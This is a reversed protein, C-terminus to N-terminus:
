RSRITTTGLQPQQSFALMRLICTPLDPNIEHLPSAGSWPDLAGNTFFIKSATKYEKDTIGGFHNLIYEYDPKLGFATKCYNDYDTYDFNEPYFMDIKGDTNMPMVQDACALINWGSM